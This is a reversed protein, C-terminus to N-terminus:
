LDLVAVLGAGGRLFFQGGRTRLSANSALYPDYMILLLGLMEYAIRKPSSPNSVLRSVCHWFGKGPAPSGEEALSDSDKENQNAASMHRPTVRAITDSTPSKSWVPLLKIDQGPLTLGGVGVTTGRRAMAVSSMGAASARRGAGGGMRPLQLGSIMSSNRRAAGPTGGPPPWPLVARPTSPKSSMGMLNGFSVKLGGNPPSASSQSLRHAGAQQESFSVRPSVIAPGADPTCPVELSEVQIAAPKSRELDKGQDSQSMLSTM